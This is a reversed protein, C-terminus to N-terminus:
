STAALSNNSLIQAFTGDGFVDHFSPLPFEDDVFDGMVSEFIHLMFALKM